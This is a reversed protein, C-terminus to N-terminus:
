GNYQYLQDFRALRDELAEIGCAKYYAHLLRFGSNDINMRADMYIKKEESVSFNRHLHVPTVKRLEYYALAKETYIGHTSPDYYLPGLLQLPQLSQVPQSPTLGTQSFRPNGDYLESIMRALHEHYSEFNSM